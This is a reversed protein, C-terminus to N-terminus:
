NIGFNLARIENILCKEIIQDRSYDLKMFNCTKCCPTCNSITYSKLSDIRDIGQCGDESWCGCYTCKKSFLENVKDEMKKELVIKLKMLNTKVNILEQKQLADQFSNEQEKKESM